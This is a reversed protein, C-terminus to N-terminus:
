RHSQKSEWLRVDQAALFADNLAIRREIRARLIELRERTEEAREAADELCSRAVAYQRM